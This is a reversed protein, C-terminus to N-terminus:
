VLEWSTNRVNEQKNIILHGLITYRKRRATNQEQIDFNADLFATLQDAQLFTMIRQTNRVTQKRIFNQEIMEGDVDVIETYPLEVWEKIQLTYTEAIDNRNTSVIQAFVIAKKDLDIPDYSVENITKVM